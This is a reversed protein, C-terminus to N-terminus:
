LVRKLINLTGQLHPLLKDVMSTGPYHQRQATVGLAGVCTGHRDRIPLALGSVGLGGYGDVQWYGQTAAAKIQAMFSAEDQVTYPTFRSFDYGTLWRARQSDTYTSLIAYGPAVVHAPMRAGVNFGVSLQDVVDGRAVYVVDHGDLVSINTTEGIEMSLRQLFPQALRPLRAGELYGRSLGLIKPSLWYRKGDTQAYGESVLTTLYRRAATRTLGASRGAETATLRPNDFTLAEMVRLGCSLAEVKDRRSASNGGVSELPSSTFSSKMMNQEDLM